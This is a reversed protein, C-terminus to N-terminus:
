QCRRPVASLRFMRGGEPKMDKTRKPQASSNKPWPQLDLVLADVCSAAVVTSPGLPVPPVAVPLTGPVASLRFM